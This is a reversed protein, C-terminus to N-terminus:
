SACASSANTSAGSAPRAPPARPAPRHRRFRDRTTGRASRRATRTPRRPPNRGGRSARASSGRGRPRATRPRRGREVRLRAQPLALHQEERVACARSSESRARPSLVAITEFVDTGPQSSSGTRSFCPSADRMSQPRRRTRPRCACAAGASRGARARRARRRAPPADSNTPSRTRCSTRPARSAPMTVTCASQLRASSCGSPASGSKSAYVIISTRFMTALSFPPASLLCKRRTIDLRASARPRASLGGYPCGGSPAPWSEAAGDAAPFRTGASRPGSRCPRTGPPRRRARTGTRRRTRPTRGASRRSCASPTSPRSRGPCAAAPRAARAPEASDLRHPRRQRHALRVHRAAVLRLALREAADVRLEELQREVPRAEAHERPERRVLLAGRGDLPCNACDRTVWAHARRFLSMRPPLCAAPGPTMGSALSRDRLHPRRQRERRAAERAVGLTRRPRAADTKAKPRASRRGARTCTACTRVDEASPHHGDRGATELVAPLGQGGPPGPVRGAARRDRGRRRERPPRPELRAAGALRQRAARAAPRPRDRKDLSTSCPRTRRPDRVDFGSVFLHCSDLCVGLRPHGDLRDFITALEDISRGITNGTGASNEM